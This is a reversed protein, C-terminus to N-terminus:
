AAAFIREEALFFSVLNELSEAPDIRNWPCSFSGILGSEKSKASSCSYLNGRLREPFRWRRRLSGHWGGHTEDPPLARDGAKAAVPGQRIPLRLRRASARRQKRRDAPEGRSPGRSRNLQQQQQQQQKPTPQTLQNSTLGLKLRTCLPHKRHTFTPANNPTPHTLKKETQGLQM